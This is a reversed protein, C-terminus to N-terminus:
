LSKMRLLLEPKDSDPGMTPFSIPGVNWVIEEDTLEFSFGMLLVSLIVELAPPSPTLVIHLPYHPCSKSMELQAFKFGSDM